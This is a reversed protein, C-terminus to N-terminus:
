SKRFNSKKENEIMQEIIMIERKIDDRKNFREIKESDSVSADPNINSYLKELQEKHFELKEIRNECGILDREVNSIFVIDKKRNNKDKKIYDLVLILACIFVIIFPVTYDM